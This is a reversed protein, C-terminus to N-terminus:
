ARSNNFTLHPRTRWAAIWPGRMVRLRAAPAEECEGARKVARELHGLLWTRTAEVELEDRGVEHYAM